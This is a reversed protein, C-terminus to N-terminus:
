SILKEVINLINRVDDENFLHNDQKRAQDVIGDLYALVQAQTESYVGTEKLEHNIESFSKRGRETNVSIGYQASLQQLTHEIDAAALLIAPWYAGLSLAKRAVPLYGQNSRFPAGISALRDKEYESSLLRLGAPCLCDKLSPATWFNVSISIDLSRVQHWWFAPLFLLEGPELILDYRMAHRVRPYKEIDLEDPNVHSIHSFEADMPFPYLEEFFCRDYLTFRKRGYIQLFFNNLPDHHLPTLNKASGFWFQIASQENGLIEPPVIDDVLEPFSQQISQQMIYVGTNGAPTCIEKVAEQFTQHTLHFGRGQTPDYHFIGAQATAVQVQKDKLRQSLSAPTWTGFPGWDSPLRSIIVPKGSLQYENIFQEKSLCSLRPISRNSDQNQIASM